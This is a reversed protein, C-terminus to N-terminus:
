ETTMRTVHELYKQQCEKIRQTINFINLEWKVDQNIKNDVRRYGAVPRYTQKKTECLGNKKKLIYIYLPLQLM